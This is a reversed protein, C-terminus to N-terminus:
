KKAKQKKTDKPEESEQKKAERPPLVTANKIFEQETMGYLTEQVEYGTISVAKIPEGELAKEVAKMMKVEDKYTRPLTITQEFTSRDETNVCFITVITTPITRTVQPVRAM